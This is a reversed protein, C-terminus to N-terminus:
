ALKKNHMLAFKVKEAINLAQCSLQTPLEHVLAEPMIFVFYFKGDKGRTLTCNDDRFIAKNRERKPLQKICFGGDTEMKIKCKGRFGEVKVDECSAIEATCLGDEFSLNVLAEYNVDKNTIKKYSNKKIINKAM